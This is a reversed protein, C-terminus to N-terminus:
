RKVQKVAVDDRLYVPLAQEAPLATGKEHLHAGLQAVFRARPFCQARWASVHNKLRVTLLAAYRDWGSGAGVWAADDPVPVQAPSLVKEEGVLEVMGQANRAYAGWYVQQMRADFAALVRPADVGQALAALSSVPVVPLNAGFALGQAVGAGIREVWLAASCAESSTDLALIKM